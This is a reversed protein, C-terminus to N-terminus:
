PPPASQLARAFLRILHLATSDLTRGYAIIGDEHGGMALIGHSRHGALVGVAQAMEPTGYAVSDHIWPLKLEQARTWIEPSHVHLVCQVSGNAEYVAAHTLAESSPPIPGSARVANARLDYGHVWCYHRETLEPVGGTQTGSVLFRPGPGAAKPVSCRLSVNGFGVGGYRGPDQSILGLRHLVTRWANLPAMLSRPPPASRTFDLQFKTVGESEPM